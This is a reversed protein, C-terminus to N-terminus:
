YPSVYRYGPKNAEEEHRAVDVERAFVEWNMSREEKLAIAYHRILAHTEEDM